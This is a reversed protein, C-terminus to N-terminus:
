EYKLLTKHYFYNFWPLKMEFYKEETSEFPFLNEGHKNSKLFVM